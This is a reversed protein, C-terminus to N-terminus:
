FYFFLFGWVCVRSLEGDAIELIFVDGVMRVKFSGHEAVIPGIRSLKPTRDPNTDCIFVMGSFPVISSM